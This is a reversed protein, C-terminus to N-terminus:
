PGPRGCVQQRAQPQLRLVLELSVEEEVGEPELIPSCNHCLPDYGELFVFEGCCHSALRHGVCVDYGRTDEHPDVECPVPSRWFSFAASCSSRTLM